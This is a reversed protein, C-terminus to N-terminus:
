NCRSERIFGVASQHSNRKEEGIKSSFILEKNSYERNKVFSSITCSGDYVGVSSPGPPADNMLIVSQNVELEHSLGPESPVFTVICDALGFNLSLNHRSFIPSQFGIYNSLFSM